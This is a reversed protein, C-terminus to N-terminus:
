SFSTDLLREIADRPSFRNHLRRQREVQRVKLFECVFDEFQIGLEVVGISAGNLSYSCAQGAARKSMTTSEEGPNGGDCRRTQSRVRRCCGCWRDSQNAPKPQHPWRVRACM